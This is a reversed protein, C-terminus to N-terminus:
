RFAPAVVGGASARCEDGESKRRLGVPGTPGGRADGARPVCECRQAAGDLCARGWRVGRAGHGGRHVPGGGSNALEENLEGGISIFNGRFALRKDPVHTEEGPREPESGWVTVGRM